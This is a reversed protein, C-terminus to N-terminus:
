YSLNLRLGVLRSDGLQYATGFPAGANFAYVSYAKNALNDAYLDASFNKNVQWSLGLDLLSYGGQSLSNGEDFYTKGVYTVGMHPILQGGNPLDFSYQANLNATRNPAYPLTNGSLDASSGTPDKYHRFESNNVAVGAKVQLHDTPMWKANLSAGKTRADGVNQLYQGQVPGVSLQYDKIKLLYASGALELTNDFLAAKFGVEFNQAKQPSYNFDINQPTVARTFGGAKFGTSYLAYASLDDTFRYNIGLKPSTSSDRKDNSGDIAGFRTDVDTRQQEFRLGPTIDLRDTAHWTVEGYAAYSRINQHSMLDYLPIERHFQLDEAYLGTVFDFAKGDERKSALRLEQTLTRQTEPTYSGFVTRDNDRDQYGTLSTLLLNGLDYNIHLGYSDTTLKYHSEVPLVKRKSKDAEVSFYEADSNENDHAATVMVDLPSDGPAYRLRIRANNDENDGLRKGTYMDEFDGRNNVTGVAVDGFLADDVLPGSALLQLGRGRSNIDTSAELHTQEDPKRTVVNIVGGITGRGYLTGQPGYLIEVQQLDQPLMQSLLAQDQPLGDVYLQAAPNYFDPSSQGRITFNSFARSSRQRINVDTFVRDLQDVRRLGRPTLDEPTAVDVAGAIENITQDRKTASVTIAPLNLEQEPADAAFAPSALAFALVSLLATDSVPRWACTPLTNRLRPSCSHTM